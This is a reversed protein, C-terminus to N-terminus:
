CAGAVCVGFHVASPHSSNSVRFPFVANLTAGAFGGANDACVLSAQTTPYHRAIPQLAAQCADSVSQGSRMHMVAAFAPAFRMMVDGDGTAAAGGVSSDAYAGSGPIPSDGVRGAIKFTKGNTSTGAVVEGNATVVVMGITDLNDMDLAWKTKQEAAAKAAGAAEEGVPPVVCSSNPYVHPMTWYNPEHGRACWDRWLSYSRATVLPETDFGVEQAFRTADEGVLLSHSTGELVHRAVKIAAPVRKLCGVAGVDMTTGDMVMADLTTEANENPSGGFGVSFGCNSPDVECQHCGEVLADMGSGSEELVKWGRVNAAEFDWTSIVLPPATRATVALALLLLLLPYHHMTPM